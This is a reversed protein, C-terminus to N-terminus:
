APVARSPRYGRLQQEEHLRFSGFFFGPTPNTGPPSCFVSPNPRFFMEATCGHLELGPLKISLSFFYSSKHVPLFVPESTSLLPFTLLSRATEASLVIPHRLRTRKRLPLRALCRQHWPSAAPFLLRGPGRPLTLNIVLRFLSPIALPATNPRILDRLPIYGRSSSPLSSNTSLKFTFSFTGRLGLVPYSVRTRCSSTPPSYSVVSFLGAVQKGPASPFTPGFSPPTVPHPV